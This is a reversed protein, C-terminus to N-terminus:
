IFFKYFIEFNGWFYKREIKSDFYFETFKYFYEIYLLNNYYLYVGRNIHKLFKGKFFITFSNEITKTLNVVGVWFIVGFIIMFFEKLKFKVVNLCSFYINGKKM